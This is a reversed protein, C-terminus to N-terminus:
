TVRVHPGLGIVEMSAWSGAQYHTVFMAPDSSCMLPRWTLTACM